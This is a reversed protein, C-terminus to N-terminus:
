MGQSLLRSICICELMPMGLLIKQGSIHGLHEGVLVVLMLTSVCGFM